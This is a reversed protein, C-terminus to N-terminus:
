VSVLGRAVGPLVTLDLLPAARRRETRAFLARTAAGAM